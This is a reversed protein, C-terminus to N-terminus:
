SARREQKERKKEEQKWFGIGRRKASKKTEEHGRRARGEEERAESVQRGASPIAEEVV